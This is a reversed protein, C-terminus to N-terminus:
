KKSWIKRNLKFENVIGVLMDLVEFYERIERFELLSKFIKPEFMEKKFSIALYIKSGYFSVHLAKDVKKKLRVIREMLAPTLIYRAEIQDDSYVVFEKEFESNDMKVLEGRTSLGQFFTGFDGFLKQARDPLVLTRGDFNKHFDAIFFIGQFITHWHTNGNKDKTKYETHLDSFKISVGDIEGSVLDDGKYRDYSRPFLRSMKYEFDNISRIKDYRLSEDIFKVMTEVIEDKFRNTFEKTKMKYVWQYIAMSGGFSVFAAMILDSSLISKSLVIFAVISGLSLYIITTKLSTAIREREEELPALRSRMTKYYYDLFSALKGM